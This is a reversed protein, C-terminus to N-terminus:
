NTLFSTLVKADKNTMEKKISNRAKKLNYFLTARPIELMVAADKVKCGLIDILYFASKQNEGLRNAIENLRENFRKQIFLKEPSYSDSAQLNYYNEIPEFSARKHKRVNDIAVNRTIRFIWTSFNRSKDYRWLNNAVKLFVLQSVDMAEEYNRVISYAFSVVQPHYKKLLNSFAKDNGTLSLDVLWHTYLEGNFIHNNDPENQRIKMKVDSRM